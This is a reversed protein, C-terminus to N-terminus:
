LSNEPLETKISVFEENLIEIEANVQLTTIPLGNIKDFEPKREIIITGLSEQLRLLTKLLYSAQQACIKKYIEKLNINRKTSLIRYFERESKSRLRIILSHTSKAISKTEM